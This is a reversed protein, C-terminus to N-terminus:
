KKKYYVIIEPYINVNFLSNNHRVLHRRKSENVINDMNHINKLHVYNEDIDTYMYEDIDDFLEFDNANKHRTGIKCTFKLPLCEKLKSKVIPYLESRLEFYDHKYYLIPDVLGILSYKNNEIHQFEIKFPINYRFGDGEKFSIDYNKLSHFSPIKHQIFDLKKDIYNVSKLLQNKETNLEYIAKDM